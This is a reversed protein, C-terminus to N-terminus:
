CRAIAVAARARRKKAPAGSSTGNESPARRFRGDAYTELGDEVDGTCHGAFRSWGSAHQLWEVMAEHHRQKLVAERDGSGPIATFQEPVSSDVFVIALAETPYMSVFERIYFGGASAGVLLLPGTEGAKQLLAHLQTAINEASRPGPQHESWGLGARDYSCVRTTKSLEPQVKQWYVWDDGGGSELLVTPSGQGTCYLHMSRGGVQYFAGPVPHRARLIAGSAANFLAGALVLSPLALVIALIAARRRPVAM